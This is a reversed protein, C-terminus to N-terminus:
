VYLQENAGIITVQEQGQEGATGSGGGGRGVPAGHSTVTVTGAAGRAGTTNTVAGGRRHAGSGGRSTKGGDLRGAVQGQGRREPRGHQMGGLVLPHKHRIEIHLPLFM